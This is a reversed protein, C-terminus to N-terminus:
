QLRNQKQGICRLYGSLYKSDMMGGGGSAFVTGNMRKILFEVEYFKEDNCSEAFSITAEARYDRGDTALEGNLYVATLDEDWAEDFLILTDPLYSSLVM